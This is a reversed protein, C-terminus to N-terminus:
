WWRPSVSQRNSKTPLLVNLLLRGFRLALQVDRHRQLISLSFMGSDRYKKEIQTIDREFEEVVIQIKVYSTAKKLAKHGDPVPRSLCIIAQLKHLVKRRTKTKCM